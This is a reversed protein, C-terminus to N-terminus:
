KNKKVLKATYIIQRLVGDPGEFEKIGSLAVYQSLYDSLATKIERLQGQTDKMKDIIQAANSQKQVKLKAISKLKSIKQYDKDLQQYEPDNELLAEFMGKHQKLETSLSDFKLNYSNILSEISILNAAQNDTTPNITPM